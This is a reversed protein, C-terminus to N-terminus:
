FWAVMKNRHMITDYQMGILEDDYLDYKLTFTAGDVLRFKHSIKWM